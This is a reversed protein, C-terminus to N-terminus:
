KTARRKRERAKELRLGIRRKARAEDSDICNGCFQYPGNGFDMCEGETHSHYLDGCVDCREIYDPVQWYLGGLFWIVTWAQDPTLKPLREESVVCREPLRGQLFDFLEQTQALEEEYDFKRNM